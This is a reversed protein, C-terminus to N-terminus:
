KDVQNNIPILSLEYGLDRLIAFTRKVQETSLGSEMKALYTRSVCSRKALQEQTLAAQRRVRAIAKGLETSSGVKWQKM